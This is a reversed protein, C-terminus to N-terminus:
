LESSHLLVVKYYFEDVMGNDYKVSIGKDNISFDAHLLMDMVNDEDYEKLLSVKIMSIDDGKIESIKM